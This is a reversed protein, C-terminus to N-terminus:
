MYCNINLFVSVLYLIYHTCLSLCTFIVIEIALQERRQEYDIKLDERAVTFVAVASTTNFEYHLQATKNNNCEYHLQIVTIVAKCQM